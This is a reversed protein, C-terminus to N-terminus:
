LAGGGRGDVGELQMFRGRGKGQRLQLQAIAMVSGLVM